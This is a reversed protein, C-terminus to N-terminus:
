MQKKSSEYARKQMVETAWARTTQERCSEASVTRGFSPMSKKADFSSGYAVEVFTAPMGNLLAMPTKNRILTGEQSGPTQSAFQGEWQSPEGTYGEM